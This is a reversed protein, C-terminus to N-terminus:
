NEGKEVKWTTEANGKRRDAERQAQVAPLLLGEQPEASQVSLDEVITSGRRRSKGAASAETAAENISQVPIWDTHNKDAQAPAAGFALTAALAVLITNTKLQFM